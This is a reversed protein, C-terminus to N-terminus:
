ERVGLRTYRRKIEALAKEHREQEARIKQRRIKAPNGAVMGFLLLGAVLAVVLGAGSAFSPVSFGLGQLTGPIHKASNM